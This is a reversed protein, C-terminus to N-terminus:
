TSANKPQFRTRYFGLPLERPPLSEKVIRCGLFQDVWGSLKPFKERTLLELGTVEQVIGLWFALFCAVIDVIGLSDGGFFKKGGLENELLELNECAEKIAKEPEEKASFANWISLMCKEDIFNVWFRAMAREYPDGSLIPTDKWTEEIYELIVVSEAIPKGNHVLVPVKKHVPNYKLLLPSKNQLDEEVFDYKIGKLNLAIEVRCTFPSLKAGLLQVEGM